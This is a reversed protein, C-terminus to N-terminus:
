GGLKEFNGVATLLVVDIKVTDISLVRENHIGQEDRRLSLKSSSIM